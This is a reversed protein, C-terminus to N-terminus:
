LGVRTKAAHCPECLSQHNSVDLRLDPASKIPVIHDVHLAPIIRGNRLCEQCLHKDRALAIKRVQQWDHGYGRESTKGRLSGSTGTWWTRVSM